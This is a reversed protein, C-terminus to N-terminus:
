KCDRSLMLRGDDLQFIGQPEQPTQTTLGVLSQVTGTPYASITNSEPQQPLGENGTIAFSGETNDSRNICSGATLAATDVLTEELTTLSDEVFSVDPISVSGSAIQGTANVDVRGNGDLSDLNVDESAPQFNQGFFGPTDLTINGGAGAQAFAPQNM